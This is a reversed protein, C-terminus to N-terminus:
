PGLLHVTYKVLPPTIWAYAYRVPSHESLMFLPTRLRGVHLRTHPQLQYALFLLDPDAEYDDKRGYSYGEILTKGTVSLKDSVDTILKAGLRSGTRM